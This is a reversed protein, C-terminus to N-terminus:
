GGRRFPPTAKSSANLALFSSWGRLALTALCVDAVVEPGLVFPGEGEQFSAVRISLRVVQIGTTVLVVM